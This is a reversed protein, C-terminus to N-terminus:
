YTNRLALILDTADGDPDPVRFDCPGVGISSGVLDMYKQLNSFFMCMEEKPHQGSSDNALAVQRDSHVIIKNRAEVIFDRYSHLKNSLNKIEETM